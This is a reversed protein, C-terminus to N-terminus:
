NHHQTIHPKLDVEIQHIADELKKTFDDKEPDGEIIIAERKKLAEPGPSEYPISPSRAELQGELASWLEGILRFLPNIKDVLDHGWVAEAEFLDAQLKSRAASIPGWRKQYVQVLIQWEKGKELLDDSKGQPLDSATSYLMSPNRINSIAERLEYMFSLINKALTYKTNGRLQRHWTNLGRIGVYSASIAAITIAVGKIM